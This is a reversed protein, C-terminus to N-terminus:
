IGIVQIILDRKRPGDFDVAFINQKDTVMMRGREIPFTESVRLLIAKCHSHGNSRGDSKRGKKIEFLDHSYQTDDPVLKHFVSIFDRLLMPENHNVMVSMTAHPCYVLVQGERIGSADVVEQIEHTLDVLDTQKKTEFNINRKFIKM